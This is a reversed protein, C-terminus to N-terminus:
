FRSSIAELSSDSQRRSYAGDGTKGKRLNTILGHREWLAFFILTYTAILLLQVILGTLTFPYGRRKKRQNEVTETDAELWPEFGSCQIAVHVMWLHDMEILDM